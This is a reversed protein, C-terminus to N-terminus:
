HVKIHKTEKWNLIPFSFTNKKIPKKILKTTEYSELPDM